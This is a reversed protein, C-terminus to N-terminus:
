RDVIGLGQKWAVSCLGVIDRFLEFELERRGEIKEIGAKFSREKAM